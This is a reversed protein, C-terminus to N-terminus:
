SFPQGTEWALGAIRKALDDDMTVTTRMGDDSLVGSSRFQPACPRFATHMPSRTPDPRTWAFLVLSASPLRADIREDHRYDM